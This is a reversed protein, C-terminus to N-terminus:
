LFEQLFNERIDFLIKLLVEDEERYEKEKLIAIAENKNPVDQDEDLDCLSLIQSNCEFLCSENFTEDSSSECWKMMDLILYIESVNEIDRGMNMKDCLNSFKSELRFVLELLLKSSM